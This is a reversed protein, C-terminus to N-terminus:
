GHARALEELAAARDAHRILRARGSRLRELAEDSEARQEPTLWEVEPAREMAARIPDAEPASQPVEDLAADEREAELLLTQVVPHATPLARLPGPPSAMEARLHQASTLAAAPTAGYDLATDPGAPGPGLAAYTYRPTTM